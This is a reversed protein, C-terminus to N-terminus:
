YKLCWYFFKKKNVLTIPTIKRRNELITQKQQQNLQIEISDQKGSLISMVTDAAVVSDRHYKTSEHDAFRELANEWKQFKVACLTGLPQNGVGSGAKSEFFFATNAFPEM